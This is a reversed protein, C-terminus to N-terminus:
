KAPAHKKIAAQIEQIALEIEEETVDIRKAKAPDIKGLETTFGDLPLADTIVPHVDSKEGGWTMAVVSLNDGSEGARFEAQDMLTQVAQGLPYASLTAAIEDPTVMNWLGDTCLVMSDGAMAPVPRGLEVEPPIFGGLCNYIKNREPHNIAASEEIIGRDVMQQVTSHDRTRMVLHGGSFLMLRSDGVHAWYVMGREVVSAVCTTRPAEVLGNELAHDNIAEHAATIAEVLFKNPDALSPKALREFRSVLTEVVIQAAVEGKLHGGMGDAVVMLLADRSYSYAVRDQNYVRGGQRSTQYITFKM